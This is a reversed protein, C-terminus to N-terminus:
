CGPFAGLETHSGEKLARHAGPRSGPSSLPKSKPSAARAREEEAFHRVLSRVDAKWQFGSPEEDDSDPSQYARAAEVHARPDSSRSRPM